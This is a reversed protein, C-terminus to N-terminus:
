GSDGSSRSPSRRKRRSREEDDRVEGESGSSYQLLSTSCQTAIHLTVTTVCGMRIGSELDVM